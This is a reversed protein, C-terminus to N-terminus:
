EEEIYKKLESLAQILDDIEDMHLFAYNKAGFQPHLEMVIGKVHEGTRLHIESTAYHDDDCQVVKFSPRKTEM